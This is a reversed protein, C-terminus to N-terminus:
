PKFVENNPVSNGFGPKAGGLIYIRGGHSAAGTEARGVPMPTETTWNDHAVHYAQNTQVGPVVGNWGGIAYVADGKTGVAYFAARPGPMDTPATSWTDTVPDYVDVDAVFSFANRCGGFVFIKGGMTAAARDSLAFPMSAVTTWVNTDIDYREVSSLAGGSCPGGPNTRGGFAYIANGAVALALGTRAQNMPALVTWLDSAPDYSWLDKRSTLLRGGATYFLGGHSVGAGESSTGPADAGFSWSDSAIDYIRTTKTDGGDFGLAAIIRDGVVAVSMGEVGIFRHPVPALETWTGPKSDALAPMALILILLPFAFRSLNKTSLNTM